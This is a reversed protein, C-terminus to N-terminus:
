FGLAWVTFIDGSTLTPYFVAYGEAGGTSGTLSELGMRKLVRAHWPGAALDVASATSENQVRIDIADTDQVYGTVTFDVLDISAAVQVFDGLAAGTVAIQSTDGEGDDLSGFDVAAAASLDNRPQFFIVEIERLDLDSANITTTSGDSTVEYARFAMGGIQARCKQNFTLAM